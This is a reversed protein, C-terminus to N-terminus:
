LSIGLTQFAHLFKLCHVLSLVVVLAAGLLFNEHQGTLAGLQLTNETADRLQGLSWGCQPNNIGVLLVNSNSLRVLQVNWNDSDQVGVTVWIVDVEWDWAVIVSD